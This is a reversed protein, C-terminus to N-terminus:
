GDYETFSTHGTQEAHARAEKEGKLAQRCVGCQLAFTATDTYAHEKRLETVLRQAATLIGEESRPFVTTDFDLNPPPFSSSPEPPSFSLTLADYHIGSYILLVFTEYGADQGFRDVRGTQVDISCIETAFHKAFISLEIAGGWSSPKLITAIYDAPSRGLLVESYTEPDAQIAGATVRRLTTSADIDGSALVLGVARFLCSNDDPVVRLVLFGGDTEVYRPRDAAAGSTGVLPTSRAGRNADTWLPAPAASPSSARKKSAPPGAPIASTSPVRESVGRSGSTSAAPGESVVLTEGSAIGLESLPTHAGAGEAIPKPPFGGRLQQRSTDIGTAEQIKTRLEALTADASLTVTAQGTPGRIRLTVM